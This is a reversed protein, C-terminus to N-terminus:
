IVVADPWEEKQLRYYIAQDLLSGEESKITVNCDSQGISVESAHMDVKEGLTPRHLWVVEAGRNKIYELENPFRADDCVFSKVDATSQDFMKVHIDENWSRMVDTGLQQLIYRPTLYGKQQQFFINSVFIDLDKEMETITKGVALVPNNRVSGDYIRISTAHDTLGLALLINKLLDHGLTDLDYDKTIRIPKDKLEPSYFNNKHSTFVNSCIQKLPTAFSVREYGNKELVEAAHSKGSGKTGCFAFSKSM